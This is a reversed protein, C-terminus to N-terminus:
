KDKDKWMRCFFMHMQPASTFRAGCQCGGWSDNILLVNLDVPSEWQYQTGKGQEDYNLEYLVGFEDIRDYSMMEYVRGHARILKPFDHVTKPWDVVHQSAHRFILRIRM